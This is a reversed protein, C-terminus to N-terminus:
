SRRGDSVHAAAEGVTIERALADAIGRTVAAAVRNQLDALESVSGDVKVSTVVAGSAVDVVRATVRVVDGDRQIGGGVTWAAEEGPTVITVEPLDALRATVTDTIVRGLRM